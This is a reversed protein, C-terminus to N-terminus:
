QKEELSAIIKKAAALRIKNNKDVLKHTIWKELKQHVPILLAAMCVMITLMLLPSNNSLNGIFPGLLLNM